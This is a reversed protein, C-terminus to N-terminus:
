AICYLWLIHDEVSVNYEAYPQYAKMAPSISWSAKSGPNYTKQGTSKSYDGYTVLSYDFSGKTIKLTGTIKDLVNGTGLKDTWTMNLTATYNAPFLGGFGGKDSITGGDDFGAALIARSITEDNYEAVVTVMYSNEGSADSSRTRSDPVVDKVTVVSDIPIVTGDDLTIGAKASEKIEQLTSEEINESLNVLTVNGSPAVDDAFASVSMTAVMALVLLASIFKKM